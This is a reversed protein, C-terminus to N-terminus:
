FQGIKRSKPLGFRLSACGIRFCPREGPPSVPSRDWLLWDTSEKIKALLHVPPPNTKKNALPGDPVSKTAQGLPASCLPNEIELCAPKQANLKM